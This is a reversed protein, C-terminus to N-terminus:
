SVETQGMRVEPNMPDLAHDLRVDAVMGEGVYGFTSFPEPELVNVDRFDPEKKTEGTRHAWVFGLEELQQVREDSMSAAALSNDGTEKANLYLRYQTRQTGVWIGLEPNPEYRSPVNCHGFEDKFDKLDQFRQNWSEGLSDRSRITWTFGLENLLDIRDQTLRALRRSKPGILVQLNKYQQRQASVWIGLRRNKTYRAPVNCHGHEEKFAKLEVFHKHWDDRLSWVFGLNELRRIRDDTLRGVVPKDSVAPTGETESIEGDADTPGDYVVGESALKKKMKKYQVRQTDVWTGLKPDEKFRKPVLCDGYKDKYGKLRNFMADWQDDYSNRVIRGQEIGKENERASWIFGIEELRKRREETLRFQVDDESKPEEGGTENGDSSKGTMMKRYQIRQTHVWTGLKVDQPFRKPVMCHGTTEKFQLLREFMQDWQKDYYRKMKHKVKWEFGISELRRLREETLRPNTMRPKSQLNVPEPEELVEAAGGNAARQLKTYEYRQTEVWKGLKVNAEYRSPM